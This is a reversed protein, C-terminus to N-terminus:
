SARVSSHSVLCSSSPRPSVGCALAVLGREFERPSPLPTSVVQALRLLTTPPVTLLGACTYTQRPKAPAVATLATSAAITENANADSRQSSRTRARRKARRTRAKKSPSAKGQRRAARSACTAGGCRLSMLHCWQTHSAHSTFHRNPLSTKGGASREVRGSGGVRSACGDKNADIASLAERAEAEEVPEARLRGMLARLEGSDIAGDSNLDVLDFAQAVQAAERETMGFAEPQFGAAEADSLLFFARLSSASDGGRPGLGGDSGRQLARMMGDLSSSANMAGFVRRVGDLPNKTVFVSTDGPKPALALEIFSDASLGVRLSTALTVLLLIVDSVTCYPNNTLKVSDTSFLPYEEGQRLPVCEPHVCVLWM